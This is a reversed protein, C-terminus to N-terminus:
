LSLCFPFRDSNLLVRTFFLRENWSGQGGQEAYQGRLSFNRVHEQTGEKDSAKLSQPTVTLGEIIIRASTISMLWKLSSMPPASNLVTPFPASNLM